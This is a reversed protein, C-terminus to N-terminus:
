AQFQWVNDEVPVRLYPQFDPHIPIYLYADALDISTMVEGVQLQKHISQPTEMRFTLRTIFQNLAKM